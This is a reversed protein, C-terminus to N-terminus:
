KKKRTRSYFPLPVVELPELHGRVDAKLLSLEESNLGTQLYGMAIPCGMTPSPAGSTVYGVEGASGLIKMGQRVPRKSQVRFGTLKRAPGAAKRARLAEQGVFPVTKELKVAFGLGAEFPDVTLDLEHGYLPMGAELRLTDRAGLGIPAIRNDGVELLQRWFTPADGSELYVEFGDEGTYGTRAVWASKGLVQAHTISYYKMAELPLDSKELCAPLIRVSQPGQISIMALDSSRDVLKAQLSGKQAQMWQLVAPRNSANVVLLISSLAPEPLKYVIVDELVTGGENCILSYRAEGPKLADYDNSLVRNIWLAADAGTIELRGMHCLDFLGSSIRVKLHEEPISGYRVPMEWGHFDVMQAGLRLHEDALCTRELSPTQTM